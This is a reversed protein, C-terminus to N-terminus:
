GLFDAVVIRFIRGFLIHADVMSYCQGANDDFSHGLKIARGCENLTQEVSWDFM